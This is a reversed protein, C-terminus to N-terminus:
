HSLSYNASLTSIAGCITPRNKIVLDTKTKEMSGSHPELAYEM